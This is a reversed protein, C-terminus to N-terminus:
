KNFNIILKKVTNKDNMDLYNERMIKSSVNAKLLKSLEKTRFSLSLKRTEEYKTKSALFAIIHPYDFLPINGLGINEDITELNKSSITFGHYLEDMLKFLKIQSRTTIFDSSIAIEIDTSYGLQELYDKFLLQNYYALYESFIFWYDTYKYGTSLNHIIHTFEHAINLSTLISKHDVVEIDNFVLDTVGEAILLDMAEEQNFHIDKFKDSFIEDDKANIYEILINVDYMKIITEDFTNLYDKFYERLYNRFLELINDRSLYRLAGEITKRKNNSLSLLINRYNYYNKRLFKNGRIDYIDLLEDRIENYDM